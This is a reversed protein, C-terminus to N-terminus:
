TCVIDAREWYAALHGTHDGGMYVNIRFETNVTPHYDTYICAGRENTKISKCYNNKYRMKLRRNKDTEGKVYVVARHPINDNVKGQEYEENGNYRKLLGKM